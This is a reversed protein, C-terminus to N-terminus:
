SEEKKCFGRPHMNALVSDLWWHPFTPDDYLEQKFLYGKIFDEKWMAVNVNLWTKGLAYGNLKSVATGFSEHNYLELKMEDAFSHTSKWDKSFIEYVECM